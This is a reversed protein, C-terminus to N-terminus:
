PFVRVDGACPVRMGGCVVPGDLLAAVLATWGTEGTLGKLCLFDGVPMEIAAPMDPGVGADITGGPVVRGDYRIAITNSTRVREAPQMIVIGPQVESPTWVEEAVEVRM